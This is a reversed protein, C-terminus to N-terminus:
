KTPNLERFTKLIVEQDRVRTDSQTNANQIAAQELISTLEQTSDIEFGANKILNLTAITNNGITNLYGDMFVSNAPYLALAQLDKLHLERGAAARIEATPNLLRFLCLVRLCYEPNLKLDPQIPTGEIPILFNVPISEAQLTKLKQAVEIVDDDSEGMGVIMGSCLQLGHEKAAELTKLRDEYTHSTCITAYNSESTNLNHNLRDLGADKLVKTHQSDLLGPSLCIELPYESKIKKIIGALKEIRSQTPGRGAFVMCYRYAGSEYARKAEALIEDDSKIPYEYIGSNSTKAQACYSCNEPCKGNKANNIIHIRVKKGWHERRIEFAAQLLPLLEYPGNLSLIDRGDQQTLTNSRSKSILENLAKFDM